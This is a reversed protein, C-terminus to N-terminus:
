RSAHRKGCVPWFKKAVSFPMVLFADKPYGGRSRVWADIDPSQPPDSYRLILLESLPSINTTRMVFWNFNIDLKRALHFYFVAGSTICVHPRALDAFIACASICPVGIVIQKKLGGRVEEAASRFLHVLGGSNPKIMCPDDCAGLAKHFATTNGNASVNNDARAAFFPILAIIITALFKALM